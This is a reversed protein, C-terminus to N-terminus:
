SKMSESSKRFIEELDKEFLVRKSMNWYQVYRFFLDKKISEQKGNFDLRPECQWTGASCLTTVDTSSMFVSELATSGHYMPVIPMLMLKSFNGPYPMECAEPVVEFDVLDKNKYNHRGKRLDAFLEADTSTGNRHFEEKPVCMDGICFIGSKGKDGKDDKDDKDDKDGTHWSALTAKLSELPYVRQTVGNLSLTSCPTLISLLVLVTSLTSCSGLSM